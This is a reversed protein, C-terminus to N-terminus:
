AQTHSGHWTRNGGCVKRTVVAPRIAEERWWNTPEVEPPCLFTCLPPATRMWPPSGPSCDTWAPRSCAPRWRWAMFRTQGADRRDGLELARHKLTHEVAR